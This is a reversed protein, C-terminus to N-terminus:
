RPKVSHEIKTKKSCSRGTWFTRLNMLIIWTTQKNSHCSGDSQMLAAVLASAASNSPGETHVRHHTDLQHKLSFKKPCHKCQYPKEGSTSQRELQNSPPERQVVDGRGCLQCGACAEGTTSSASEQQAPDGPDRTKCEKCDTAREARDKPVQPFSPEVSQGAGHFARQSSKKAKLLGQKIISGMGTSGTYLNQACHPYLGSHGMVSHHVRSQFHPSLLPFMHPASLSFPYAVPSHHPFQVGFFNSYNEAIKRLTSVSNWMNAPFAWPSSSSSSSSPSSSSSSSSSPSSTIVSNHPAPSLPSLRPRKRSSPSRSPNEAAEPPSHNETVISNSTKEATSPSEPLKEEQVPSGKRKVAADTASETEEKVDKTEGREEERRARHDLTDLQKRCQDELPRMELLQAARLLLYLDEVSVEVAQTYTFDLVQQFTRPSFYELTCHAPSDTDAQALQQALRRSACALVLRHARFTHSKVSIIADCLSGSRRLADAQQLFHFYQTNNIRFM